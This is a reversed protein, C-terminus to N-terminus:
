PRSREQSGHHPRIAVREGEAYAEWLEGILFRGEPPGQIKLPEVGVDDLPYLLAYDIGREHVEFVTPLPVSTM